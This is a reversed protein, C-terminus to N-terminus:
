RSQSMERQLWPALATVQSLNDANEEGVSINFLHPPTTHRREPCIWCVGNGSALRRKLMFGSVKQSKRVDGGCM